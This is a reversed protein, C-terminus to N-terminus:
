SRTASAAKAAELTGTALKIWKKKTSNPTRDWPTLMKGAGHTERLFKAAADIMEPTINM